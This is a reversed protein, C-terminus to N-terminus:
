WNYVSHDDEYETWPTVASEVLVIEVGGELTIKFKYTYSYGPLWQMYKEPVICTRPTNEKNITVSLTYSGQNMNPLVTYWGESTETYVKGDDEPDADETFADLPTGDDPRATASTITSTGRLPYTINVTGKRAIDTDDTPKFSKNELLIGERPYSYIFLFRVRAFPKMFELQVPRGFQKDPFDEINGTSFWLHTFYPAAAIGEATTADVDASFTVDDGSPAYTVLYAGNVPAAGFFRYAKAGWDWYKVTQDATIGVYEWNNTNSTSTYATNAGYSVTFGPFVRQYTTYNGTSSDYGDNKYGWVKFSTIGLENLPQGARTVDQSEGEQGSFSIAVETNVPEPEPEPEIAESSKRCSTVILGILGILAILGMLRMHSMSSMLAGSGLRKKDEEIM